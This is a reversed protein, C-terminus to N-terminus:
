EGYYRTRRGHRRDEKQRDDGGGGHPPGTSKQKKRGDALRRVYNQNNAGVADSGIGELVVHLSHRHVAAAPVNTIEPLELRNDDPNDLRKPVRLETLANREEERKLPPLLHEDDFQNDM